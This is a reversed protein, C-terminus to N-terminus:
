NSRYLPSEEVYVMVGDAEPLVASLPFSNTGLTDFTWLTSKSGTQIAVTELRTVNISRTNKDIVITRDATGLSAYGYPALARESPQSKETALHELWHLSGGESYDQHAFASTSTLAVVASIAALRTLTTKM